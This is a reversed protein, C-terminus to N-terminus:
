WARIGKGRGSDIIKGTNIDLIFYEGHWDFVKLQGDELNMGTIPSDKSVREIEEMQWILNGNFDVCYVNENYHANRALIDLLVIIKGEIVIYEDIPYDFTYLIKNNIILDKDM